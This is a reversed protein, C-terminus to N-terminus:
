LCSGALYDVSEPMVKCTEILGETLTPIVHKMLRPLASRAELLEEEQQQIEKLRRAQEADRREREELESQRKQEAAAADAEAKLKREEEAARLAAAEEEPTPHYNFPKSGKEVALATDAVLAGVETASDVTHLVTDVHLVAWFHHQADNDDANQARYAQLQASFDEESPAGEQEM